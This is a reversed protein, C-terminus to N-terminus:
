LHINKTPLPIYHFTTYLLILDIKQLSRASDDLRERPDPTVVELWEECFAVIGGGGGSEMCRRSSYEVGRVYMWVGEIGGVTGMTM